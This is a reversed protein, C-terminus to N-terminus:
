AIKYRYDASVSFAKTNDDHYKSHKLCVGWLSIHYFFFFGVWLFDVLSCSYLLNGLQKKEMQYCMFEDVQVTLGKLLLGRHTNHVFAATVLVSLMRFCPSM